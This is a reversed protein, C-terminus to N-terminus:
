NNCVHENNVIGIYMTCNSGLFPLNETVHVNYKNKLDVIIIFLSRHVLSDFAFLVQYFKTSNLIIVIFM